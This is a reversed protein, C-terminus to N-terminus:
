PAHEANGARVFRELALHLRVHTVADEAIALDIAAITERCVARFDDSFHDDAAYGCLNARMGPLDKDTIVDRKKM